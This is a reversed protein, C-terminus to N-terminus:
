YIVLTIGMSIQAPFNIYDVRTILLLLILLLFVNIIVPFLGYVIKSIWFVDMFNESMKLFMQSIVNWTTYKHMKWQM